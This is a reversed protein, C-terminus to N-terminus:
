QKNNVELFVDTSLDGSGVVHRGSLHTGPPGFYFTYNSITDLLSYQKHCENISYFRGFVLKRVGQSLCSDALEIWFQNMQMFFVNVQERLCESIGDVMM